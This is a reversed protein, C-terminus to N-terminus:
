AQVSDAAQAQPKRCWVSCKRQAGGRQRALESLLQIFVGGGQQGDGGVLGLRARPTFGPLCLAVQSPSRALCACRCCVGAGDGMQIPGQACRVVQARFVSYWRQSGGKCGAQCCCLPGAQCCCLSCPTQARWKLGGARAQTAGGHTRLLVSVCCHAQLEGAGEKM